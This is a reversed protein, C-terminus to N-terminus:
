LKRSPALAIDPPTSLIFLARSPRSPCAAQDTHAVSDRTTPKTPLHPRHQSVGTCHNTASSPSASYADYFWSLPLKLAAKYRTVQYMPLSDSCGPPRPNPPDAGNTTSRTVIYAESRTWLACTSLSGNSAESRGSM